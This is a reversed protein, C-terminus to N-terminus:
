RIRARLHHIPKELTEEGDIKVLKYDHTEWDKVLRGINWKDDKWFEIISGELVLIEDLMMKGDSVEHLIGEHKVPKNIYNITMNLNDAMTQIRVAMDAKFRSDPDDVNLLAKATIEDFGNERFYKQITNSVRESNKLVEDITYYKEDMNIGEKQKGM